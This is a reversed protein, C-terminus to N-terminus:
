AVILAISWLAAGVVVVGLSLATQRRNVGAATVGRRGFWVLGGVWVLLGLAALAAMGFSPGPVQALVASHWAERADETAGAATTSEPDVAMIAVIRRDAEAALDAAPTTLGTTARSASRIARWAALATGPDNAQDAARAVQALRGYAEDVHPALPVYHRAAARWGDIARHVDGAARAADGEALASRGQWVVRIAAAGLVALAAGVVLAAARIAARARM